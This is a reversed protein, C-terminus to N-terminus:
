LANRSALRRFREKVVPGPGTQPSFKELAFSSAAVERAATLDPLASHGIAQVLLNGAATAEAPGALVPLGAADATVQNLLRNQSGGGVIHLRSIERGSLRRLADLAEAYALALSDVACRVIEGPSGPVPQNTRKCFSRIKEPMGGPEVFEPSAPDILSRFGAANAALQALAAYDCPFGESRGEWDRRCEQILWLGAINKLFRITKGYGAENTFDSRLVDDTLLAEPLELGILSWTGSSLFAWGEGAAPVAAVAAATDHSCTARVRTDTLNPHDAHRPSLPGLDDGADVLPPLKSIPCRLPELLEKAWEGRRVSYCQSTSALSREAAMKGGFWANVYDAIMLFCDCRSVTEANETLDGYWQYLTNFRMIRIGTEAFIRDRGLLRIVEREWHHTRPDRYHRPLGMAAGARDVYVYDVGWSDTSLSIIPGERAALRLGEKLERCIGPLDWFLSTGQQLVRTPFRHVTQLTLRGNALEGLVARGSEAGLDFAVFRAPTPAATKM